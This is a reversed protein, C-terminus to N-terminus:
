STPQPPKLQIEWIFPLDKLIMEVEAMTACGPCYFERLVFRETKSMLPGLVSLPRARMRAYHKWNETVPCFVHGCKRCRIKPVHHIDTVILYESFRHSEKPPQYITPKLQSIDRYGLRQLKIEKRLRETEERNIELTKEDLHVGYVDQACRFSVLENVVDSRVMEPSRELFDGYGGGGLWRFYILDGNKLEHRSKIPPVEFEGGAQEITEPYIGRSLQEFVNAGKALKCTLNSAPYGGFLGLGDAPEAARGDITFVVEGRPCNYPTVCIEGSVGGRFKGPGASDRCQRRFLYLIPWISEYREVNAIICEPSEMIGSIGVGDAFARAGGAGGIQDQILFAFPYGNEDYGSFQSGIMVATWTACVEDKYKDSAGMMRSICQSAANIITFAASTTGQQVCAPFRPNVVTGEPAIIKVPRTVGENWPIDYALLVLLASFCGGRVASYPSNVMNPGQESTGTFDFTISDGEKTMTVVMKYLTERIGDCEDYMMERWTGDPLERLRARMMAESYEPLQELVAKITPLSYRQVLTLFRERGVRAAAIQARVDLGVMGPDRVMNCISDFVDKRIRDGEVIRIGPFRLGEHYIERVRTSRFGAEIAGVDLVHTFSGTWAIIEGEFFIPAVIYIDSQHGAGLFPDNFLYMDGEKFGPDESYRQIIAKTIVSIIPVEFLFGSRMAVDGNPLFIGTAYDGSDTVVPSGSVRELTVAMEDTVRNLRHRLIELTLFDLKEEPM